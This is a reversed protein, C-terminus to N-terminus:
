RATSCPPSRAARWRRGNLGSWVCGSEGCPRCRGTRKRLPSRSVSRTTTLLGVARTLVARFAPCFVYRAAVNGGLALVEARGLLYLLRVEDPVDSAKLVNACKNFLANARKSKGLKMYEHALDVCIVSYASSFHPMTFVNSNHFLAPKGQATDSIRSECVRKLMELLKVKLVILGLLGLLHVNMESLM